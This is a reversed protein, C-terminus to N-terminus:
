LRVAYYLLVGALMICLAFFVFSTRLVQGHYGILIFGPDDLAISGVYIAALLLALTIFLLRM